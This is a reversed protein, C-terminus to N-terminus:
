EDADVPQEFRGYFEDAAVSAVPSHYSNFIEECKIANDRDQTDLMELTEPYQINRKM